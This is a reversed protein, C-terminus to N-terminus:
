GKFCQRTREDPIASVVKRKRLVTKRVSVCLAPRYRGGAYGTGVRSLIKGSPETEPEDSDASVTLVGDM